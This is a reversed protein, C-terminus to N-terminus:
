KQPSIKLIRGRYDVIYLESNEDEGFASIMRGTELLLRHGSIKEGDRRLMWIKGNGFDGYLYAGKLGPINSGRYVYGGIVVKGESRPYDFIPPAYRGPDCPHKVGPTCITGEMINWGYNGGRRILNIEERSHQGVDGAYLDGTQFDFSFRWPNRLGYAWIEPAVRSQMRFPNDEPIGYPKNKTQEDVDIRLIKGLLTTLKQGNEEPDNGAGGDGTGIYLMGDPGFAIQGGNHNSFPQPITLLIKESKPDARKLDKTARFESIVTKLGGRSATYNVFLRRTKSFDPHFALGLLGREGGASVRKRIDLFPTKARIGNKLILVRGSQEIIFLRGSGDGAHTLGVPQRLGKAIETLKINPPGTKSPAPPADAAARPIISIELLATFILSLLVIRKDRMM